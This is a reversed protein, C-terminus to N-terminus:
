KEIRKAIWRIEKSLPRSPFLIVLDGEKLENKPNRAKYKKFVKFRKKYLPHVKIRETLVVVTKDMKASIIKGKIQKM